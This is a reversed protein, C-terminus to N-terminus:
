VRMKEYSNLVLYNYVGSAAFAGIVLMAAWVTRVSFGLMLLALTVDLATLAVLLLFTLGNSEQELAARAVPYAALPVFVALGLWILLRWGAGFTALRDLVNAPWVAAYSERVVEEGSDADALVVEVQVAGRDGSRSFEDVRGFVAADAGLEKAVRAAKEPSDTTGSLGAKDLAKRLTSKRQEVLAGKRRLRKRLLDAITGGREGDFDLVALRKDIEKRIYRHEIDQIVEDLVRDALVRRLTDVKRSKPGFVLVAGAIVAATLLFWAIRMKIAMWLTRFLGM